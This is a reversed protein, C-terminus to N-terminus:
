RGQMWLLARAQSSLPCPRNAAYRMAARLIVRWGLQAHVAAQAGSYHDAGSFIGVNWLCQAMLMAPSYVRM